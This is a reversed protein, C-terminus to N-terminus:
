YLHSKQVKINQPAMTMMVNMMVALLEEIVTLKSDVVTMAM